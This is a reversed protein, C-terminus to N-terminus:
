IREPAGSQGSLTRLYYQVETINSSFSHFKYVYTNDQPPYDRYSIVQSGTLKLAGSPSWLLHSSCVRLLSVAVRVDDPGNLGEEGRIMDVIAYVHDRVANIYKQMSGTCDLIFALDSFSANPRAIAFSL